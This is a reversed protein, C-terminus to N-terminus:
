KVTHEGQGEYRPPEHMYPVKNNLTGTEEDMATRWLQWDSHLRAENLSKPDDSTDQGTPIIILPDFKSLFIFDEDGTLHLAKLGKWLENGAGGSARM